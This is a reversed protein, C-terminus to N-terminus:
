ELNEETLEKGYYNNTTNGSENGIWLRM